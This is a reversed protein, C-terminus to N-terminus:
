NKPHFENTEIYKQMISILGNTQRSAWGNYDTASAGNMKGSALDEIAAIWEEVSEGAIFLGPPKEFARTPHESVVVPIGACALESLKTVVGFGLRQPILVGQAQILLEDLEEQKIWGKIEIWPPLFTKEKLHWTGNGAVVLRLPFNPKELRALGELLWTMGEATSLHYYSGLLLLLGPEQSQAQRQLRISQQREFIRGVPVYPYYESGLGLGDLINKEVVSIMLRHGCRSLCKYEDAFVISAYMSDKYSWRDYIFGDFSELNHGCLITPIGYKENIDIFCEFFPHDIICVIPKEGRRISEEYKSLESAFKLHYGLKELPRIRTLVQYINGIYLFYWFLGTLRQSIRTLATISKWLLRKKPQLLQDSHLPTIIKTVNDSGTLNELDYLMQYSRHNGGHGIPLPEFHTVLVINAM